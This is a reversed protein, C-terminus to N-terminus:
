PYQDPLSDVLRQGLSRELDSIQLRVAGVHSAEPLVFDPPAIGYNRGSPHLPRPTVM